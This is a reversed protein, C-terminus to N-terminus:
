VLERRRVRDTRWPGCELLENKVRVDKLRWYKRVIGIAIGLLITFVAKWKTGVEVAESEREGM